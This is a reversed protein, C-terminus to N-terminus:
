TERESTRLMERKINRSGHLIRLVLIEGRASADEYFIVYPNVVLARVRLGFERRPSGTSPMDSLNRIVRNFETEYKRATRPGAVDSLYDTIEILDVRAEPSFTVRAM